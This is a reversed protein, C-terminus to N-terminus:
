EFEIEFVKSRTELGADNTGDCISERGALNVYLCGDDVWADVGQISLNFALLLHIEEASLGATSIEVYVDDVGACAIAPADDPDLGTPVGDYQIIGLDGPVYSDGACYTKDGTEDTSDERSLGVEGGGADTIDLDQNNPPAKPTAVASGRIM